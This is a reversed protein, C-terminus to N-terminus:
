FRVENRGEEHYGSVCTVVLLCVTRSSYIVTKWDVNSNICLSILFHMSAPSHWPLRLEFEIASSAKYVGLEAWKTSLFIGLTLLLQM